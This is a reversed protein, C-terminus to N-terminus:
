THTGFFEFGVDACGFAVVGGCAAACPLRLDLPGRVLEFAKLDLKVVDILADLARASKRRHFSRQRLGVQHAAGPGVAPAALDAAAEAPRRRTKRRRAPPKNVGIFMQPFEPRTEVPSKQAFSSLEPVM